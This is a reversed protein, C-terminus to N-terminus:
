ALGLETLRRSDGLYVNQALLAQQLQRIDLDRARVGGRAALAAAVGGAQGLVYCQVQGRIWGRPNTSVSKGSAVVLNEVGQPLMIRYPLDASYPPHIIGGKPHRDFAATLGIVDGFRTGNAMDEAALDFGADIWRTYRVGVMPASQCVTAREFGPMSRQLFGAIFPIARRAELEADSHVIPDLHDLAFNCSNILVENTGRYAFLGFVDVARCHDGYHRAYEGRAIAEKVITMDKAGGHPLHFLDRERWNRLFEDLTTVRDSYQQWEQPNEEFYRATEDLDADKMFFLLSGSDPPEDRFPAGAFAALDADGTTDVAAKCRIAQRGGKCEIIVGRVAEQEKIVDVVWAEVLVRVGAEHLLEALATRFSEQDFPFQPLERTRWKASTAGRDALRDLVEECVGQVVQRGDGTIMFNTMSTMLGPGAVGGLFGMREVLLTDAGARAAGLAAAVGSVGAGAVVVDVDALVQTRRQPETIYDTM